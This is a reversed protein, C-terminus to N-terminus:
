PSLDILARGSEPDFPVSEHDHVIRWDDGVREVCVTARVWMDVEAGSALTGSVHYVFSAWGLREDAHVDLERIEYGIASEYGDFWAQTKEVAAGAGRSMLPPLVDFMVIDDAQRRGLPEPDKAIVAAVREGILARIAQDPSTTVIDEQPVPLTRTRATVGTSTSVSALVRLDDTRTPSSCSSSTGRPTGSSRRVAAGGSSWAEVPEVGAEALAALREDLDVVRVQIRNWGGPTPTEGAVDQSAGGEGGVANLNVAVGDLVLQAFGPGPHMRVEFGFHAYFRVAADVDDVLYRFSISPDTQSM